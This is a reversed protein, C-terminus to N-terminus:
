CINNGWVLAYGFMDSDLSEYGAIIAGLLLLSTCGIEVHKPVTGAIFYNVVLTSFIGCRRMTLFMPINVNKVAYLGFIVTTLCVSGVKFGTKLKGFTDKYTTFTLGFKKAGSFANRNSTRYGMLVMCILINSICQVLFLNLPSKFKYKEYCQKNVLTLGSSSCMYFFAIGAKAIM